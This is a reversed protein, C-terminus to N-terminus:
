STLTFLYLQVCTINSTKFVNKIIIKLHLLAKRKNECKHPHEWPNEVAICEPSVVDNTAVTVNPSIHVACCLTRTRTLPVKTREIIGDAIM